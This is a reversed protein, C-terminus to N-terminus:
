ERKHPAKTVSCVHLQWKCEIFVYGGSLSTYIFVVPSLLAAIHFVTLLIDPSCFSHDNVIQCHGNYIIVILYLLVALIAHSVNM